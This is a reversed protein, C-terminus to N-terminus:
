GLRRFLSTWREDAQDRGSRHRLISIALSEGDATRFEVLYSGDDKLGYITVCNHKTM